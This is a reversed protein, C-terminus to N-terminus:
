GDTRLIKTEQGHLDPTEPEGTEEPVEAAAETRDELSPESRRAAPSVMTAHQTGRKADRDYTAGPRKRHKRKMVRSMRESPDLIETKMDHLDVGPPLRAEPPPVRPMMRTKEPLQEEVPTPQHVPTFQTYPAGEGLVEALLNDGYAAPDLNPDGLVFEEMLRLDKEIEPAFMERLRRGLRSPAYDPAHQQLFGRLDEALAVGALLGIASGLCFVTRKM